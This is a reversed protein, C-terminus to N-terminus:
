EGIGIYQRARVSRWKNIDGGKGCGIDLVIGRRGKRWHQAAKDILVAKVWNNFKRLYIV